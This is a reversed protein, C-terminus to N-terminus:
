NSGADETREALRRFLVFSVGSSLILGIGLTLALTGVLLLAQPNGLYGRVYLLGAGCLTSVIGLQLPALIRAATGRPGAPQELAASVPALEMFKRGADSSLYHFLEENGSLKDLLKTHIETQVRFVRNWRRNQMLLRLLWLIAGVVALFVFPLVIDGNVNPGDGSQPWVARQFLYPVNSGRGGPLHAFLYFEPNRAIEPHSQIFVALGPNHRNVYDPHGLLSPDASLAMTLRPSMRLFGFLEERASKLEAESAPSSPGAVSPGAPGAPPEGRLLGPTSLVFCCLFAAAITKM